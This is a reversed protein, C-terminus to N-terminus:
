RKLGDRTPAAYVDRLLFIIMEIERTIKSKM